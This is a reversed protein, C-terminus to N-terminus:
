NAHAFRWDRPTMGSWETFRRTLVSADAYGIISSVDAIDLRTLTLMQKCVEYRTEDLILQFSLGEINLRRHLTRQSMGLQTCVAAASVSGALLAIRTARRVQTVVDDDGATWLSQVRLQWEKRKAPDANPLARELLKRPLVFASQDSDFRPSLGMFRRYVSPDKPESRALLLEISRMNERGVLEALINVGTLLALDYIHEGGEIGPHYIAYGWYAYDDAPLFYVLAGRSNRHYLRSIDSLADGLTPAHGMLVGIPGLASLGLGRGVELGFHPCGTVQAAIKLLPGVKSYPITGDPNALATADLGAAHLIAEPDFGLRTITAPVFCLSGVRHVNLNPM